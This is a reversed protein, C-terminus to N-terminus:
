LLCWATDLGRSLAQFLRLVFRGLKIIHNGFCEAAYGPNQCIRVTADSHFWVAPQPSPSCRGWKVSLLFPLFSRYMLLYGSTVSSTLISDPLRLEVEAARIEGRPRGLM